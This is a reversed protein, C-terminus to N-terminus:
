TYGTPCPIWPSLEYRTVTDGFWWGLDDVSTGSYQLDIYTERVLSFGRPPGHMIEEPPTTLEGPTTDLISRNLSTERFGKRFDTDLMNRFIKVPSKMTNVGTLFYHGPNLESVPQEYSRSIQFQGDLFRELKDPRLVRVVMPKDVTTYDLRIRPKEANSFSREVTLYFPSGAHAPSVATLPPVLGIAALFFLIHTLKM